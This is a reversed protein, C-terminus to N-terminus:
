TKYWIKGEVEEAVAPAEPAVEQALLPSRAHRLITITGAQPQQDTLLLIHGTTIILRVLHIKNAIIIEPPVM